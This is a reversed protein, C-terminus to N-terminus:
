RAMEMYRLAEMIDPDELLVTAGDMVHWWENRFELYMNQTYGVKFLYGEKDWTNPEFYELMQTMFYGYEELSKSHILTYTHRFRNTNYDIESSRQIGNEQFYTNLEHEYKAGVNSMYVMDGLKKRYSARLERQAQMIYNIRENSRTTLATREHQYEANMTSHKTYSEKAEKSYYGYKECIDHHEDQLRKIENVVSHFRDPISSREHCLRSEQKGLTDLASWCAAIDKNM